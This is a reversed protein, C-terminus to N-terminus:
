WLDGVSLEVMHTSKKYIMIIVQFINDGQFVVKFGKSWMGLVTISLRRNM